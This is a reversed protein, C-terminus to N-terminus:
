VNNKIENDNQEPLNEPFSGFSMISIDPRNKELLVAYNAFIDPLDGAELLVM